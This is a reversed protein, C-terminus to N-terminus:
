GLTWKLLNAEFGKVDDHFTKHQHVIRGPDPEESTINYVHCLNNIGDTVQGQSDRQAHASPSPGQCM